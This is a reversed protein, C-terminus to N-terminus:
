SEWKQLPLNRSAARSTQPFLITLVSRQSELGDQGIRLSTQIVADSSTELGLPGHGGSEKVSLFTLCRHLRSTGLTQKRVPSGPLAKRSACTLLSVMEKEAACACTLLSMIDEEAASAKTM